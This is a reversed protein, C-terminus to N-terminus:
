PFTVVVVVVVVFFWYLFKLGGVAERLIYLFMNPINTNPPLRTKKEASSFPTSIVYM